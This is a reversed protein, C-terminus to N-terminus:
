STTRTTAPSPPWSTPTAQGSPRSRPSSARTASGGRWPGTPHRVSRRRRPDSRHADGPTGVRQLQGAMYRGVSGAGAIVINMPSRGVELLARDVDAPRTPPCSFTSSTTRSCSCRRTPFAPRVPGPSCARGAPRGRRAPRDVGRGHGRAGQARRARLDLHPRDLRQPRSRPARPAPGPREDVRGVGRDPHRPTRLDGGAAPRLDPGRRTAVGFTERAVRAILINSNDGSTVAM